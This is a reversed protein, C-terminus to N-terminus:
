LSAGPPLGEGNMDLSMVVYSSGAQLATTAQDGRHFPALNRFVKFGDAGTYLPKFQEQPLENRGLTTSCEIRGGSMRGGEREYHSRFLIIDFIPLSVRPAIPILRLM